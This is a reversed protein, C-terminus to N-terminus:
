TATRPTPIQTLEILSLCSDLLGATVERIINQMESYPPHFPTQNARSGWEITYTYVKGNSAEALHRSFAYDTSTGATPYLDFSSKVEYARGRVARVADRMRNALKIAINLDPDDIYERYVADDKIGRQGNFAGNQFNMNPNTTQDQDDGWGYLIAEGYSHVDVFFRINPHSDLMSVVNQTEPESAASPGIYVQYDCPDTSNRVPAQPHFYAPYNWLFDYNRNIDVGLCGPNSSSAPRRNKRWNPEVTISYNRGDPNVQPFIFVDLNDVISQIQATTFNKSGVNLDSNTRYARTLRQIFYILIDPSGWERAHVGGIFYVGMRGSDSGKAIKLARCTRGEWTPNPLTILDTFLHNPPRSAASLASEVQRVNLYPM